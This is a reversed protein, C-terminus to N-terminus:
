SVFLRPDAVMVYPPVESIHTAVFPSAFETGEMGCGNTVMTTTELGELMGDPQPELSWVSSLTVKDTASASGRRNPGCTIQTTSPAAQWRGDVVHLVASLGTPEQPNVDDLEAGTAVCGTSTCASRFAWWRTDDGQNAGDHDLRNAGDYDLRYTGDLLSGVDAPPSKAPRSKVTTPNADIVTAPNAVTVSPPVGDTRTAVVIPIQLVQGARECENTVVTSTYLGRLTGDLQPKLSWSSIETHEGELWKDNEIYCEPIKEVRHKDTVSQWADDIFHFEATNGSSAAEQHNATDLATGTAVCETGTCASRFAWWRTDDTSHEPDPSGNITRDSLNLDLRYTGELGAAAAAPSRTKTWASTTNPKPEIMLDIVPIAAFVTATIVATILIRRLGHRNKKDAEAQVPPVATSAQPRRAAPARMTSEVTTWGGTQAAEAFARAFDTCQRFRDAPDRALAAALVPDLAALEPRTDALAPPPVNLHNSIVVAPNTEAFLPSGTLLHYATAALAYQDARGDIGLGMLQEPACYAVTGVTKNTATIGSVDNLQRAIGFDSWLIRREAHDDSQAVMINAPEVNRHLLGREHAYDLAAAVATIIEAVDGPPLGAPYHDALLQATSTGEVYDMSIWLQGEFEGHAHVGVINPHSLTAALNAERIFRQRFDEDASVDTGLIKLADQRPLSPHEALYVEGMDGRGLLRVITYRAFLDGIALPMVSM